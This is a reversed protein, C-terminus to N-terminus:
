TLTQGLTLRLWSSGQPDPLYWVGAQCQIEVPCPPLKDLHVIIEESFHDGDVWGLVYWRLRDAYWRRWSREMAVVELRCNRTSRRFGWLDAKHDLAKDRTVVFLKAGAVEPEAFELLSAYMWVADDPEGDPVVFIWNAHLMDRVWGTVPLPPRAFAELDCTANGQSGHQLEATWSYREPLLVLPREGSDELAKVVAAIQDHRFFDAHDNKMRDLVFSRQGAGEKRGRQMSSRYVAGRYGVNAGDVVCTFLGGSVASRLRHITEHSLQMKAQHWASRAHVPDPRPCGLEGGALLPAALLEASIGSESSTSLWEYLMDLCSTPLDLESEALLRLVANQQELRGATGRLLTQLAQGNLRVQDSEVLPQLVSVFFDWLREPKGTAQYHELLPQVTRMRAVTRAVAHRLVAEAAMPQKLSVMADVLCSLLAEDFPEAGPTALVEQCLQLCQQLDHSSSAFSLMAQLSPELLRTDIGDVLAERLVRQGDAQSRRAAALLGKRKRRSKRSAIAQKTAARWGEEKHGSESGPLAAQLAWQLTQLTAAAAGVGLVHRSADACARSSTRSCCRRAVQRAPSHWGTIGCCGRNLTGVRARSLPKCQTLRWVTAPQEM